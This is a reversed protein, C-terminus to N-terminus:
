MLTVVGGGGVRGEGVRVGGVGGVVGVDGVEVAVGVDAGVAPRM